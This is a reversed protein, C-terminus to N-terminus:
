VTLNNYLRISNEEVLLSVNKTLNITSDKKLTKLKIVLNNIKKRDLSINNEGLWFALIEAAEKHELSSLFKKDINKKGDLLEILIADLEENTYHNKLAISLIEKKQMESIKPLVNKRLYNRLYREDKNTEDEQWKLNNKKAYKIIEEKKYKLLPRGVGARSRLPSIGRRGTGRLVNIFITELEDDKHHATLIYDANEQQKVKNLFKYRANRATAESANAGLNGKDFIFVLGYGKALKAVFDCDRASESRIGHDYHAVLIEINNINSLMNLLVVSDVGGSVAVVYKGPKVEIDM